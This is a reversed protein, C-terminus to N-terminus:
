ETKFKYSIKCLITEGKIMTKVGPVTKLIEYRTMGYMTEPSNNALFHRKQNSIDPKVRDIEKLRKNNWYAGLANAEQVTKGAALRALRYATKLQHEYIFVPITKRNNDPRMFRGMLQMLYDAKFSDCGLFTNRKDKYHSDGTENKCLSNLIVVNDAYINVGRIFEPKSPIVLVAKEASHFQSLRDNLSSVDTVLIAEGDYEIGGQSMCSRLFFPFNYSEHNYFLCVKKEFFPLSFLTELSSPVNDKYYRGICGRSSRFEYGPSSCLFCRCDHTILIDLEPYSLAPDYLKKKVLSSRSNSATLLILRTPPIKEFFAPIKATAQDDAYVAYLPFNRICLGVSPACIIFYKKTKPPYHKEKTWVVKVEKFRPEQKKLLAFKTQYDRQLYANCCLACVRGILAQEALVRLLTSSKGTGIGSLILFKNSNCDIRDQITVFQPEMLINFLTQQKETFEFKVKSSGKSSFRKFFTKCVLALTTKLTLDDRCIWELVTYLKESYDVFQRKSQELESCSESSRKTM